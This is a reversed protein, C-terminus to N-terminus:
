LSSSTDIVKDMYYKLVFDRIASALGETEPDRTVDIEIALQNISKGEKRGIECFAAWFRDELTVSTRHGQLTLSRKKPRLSM